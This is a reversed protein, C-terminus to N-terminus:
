RPKRNPCTGCPAHKECDDLLYWGCPALKEAPVRDLWRMYDRQDSNFYSEGRHRGEDCQWRGCTIHGDMAYDGCAPCRPWGEPYSM